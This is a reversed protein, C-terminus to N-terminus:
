NAQRLLQQILDLNDEFDQPAQAALKMFIKEAEYLYTTAEKSQQWKLHAFGYAGLTNAVYPLYITPNNKALERYTKLAEQYYKEAENRRRSDATVLTGLNHLTDRM